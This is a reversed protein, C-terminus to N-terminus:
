RKCVHTRRVVSADRHKYAVAARCRRFLGFRLFSLLPLLPGFRPGCRHSRMACGAWGPDGVTVMLLVDGTGHHIEDGEASHTHARARTADTDPARARAVREGTCICRSAGIRLVRSRPPTAVLDRRTYSSPENDGCESNGAFSRPFEAIPPQCTSHGTTTMVRSRRAPISSRRTLGGRLTGQLPIESSVLSFYHFICEFCYHLYQWASDCSHINLTPNSGM